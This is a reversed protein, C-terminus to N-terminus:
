IIFQAFASCYLKIHFLICIQISDQRSSRMFINTYLHTCTYMSYAIFDVWYIIESCQNRQRMYKGPHAFFTQHISRQRFFFRHWRQKNGPFKIYLRFISLLRLSYNNSSPQDFRISLILNMSNM